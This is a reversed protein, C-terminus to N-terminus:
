FSSIMLNALPVGNVWVTVLRRDYKDLRGLSMRLSGSSFLVSRLAWKARQAAILESVCSPSFLEPADFGVFRPRLLGESGCWLDATDGDIVRVVRCSQAGTSISRTLALTGDAVLPLAVLAAVSVVIMARLYFLPDAMRRLWCQLRRPPKHPPLGMGFRPARRYDRSFPVVKPRKARM